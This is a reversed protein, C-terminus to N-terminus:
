AWSDTSSQKEGETTERLKHLSPVFTYLSSGATISAAGSPHSPLHPDSHSPRYRPAPESSCSEDTLM